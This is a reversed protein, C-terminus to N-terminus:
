GRPVAPWRQPGRWPHRCQGKKHHVVEAFGQNYDARGDDEEAQEEPKAAVASAQSAQRAVNM